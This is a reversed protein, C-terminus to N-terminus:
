LLPGRRHRPSAGRHFRGFRCRGTAAWEGGRGGGGGGSTLFLQPIVSTGRGAGRGAHGGIGRGGGGGGGNDRLKQTKANQRSRDREPDAVQTGTRTDTSPPRTICVATHIGPIPSIVTHTTTPPTRTVCTPTHARPVPDIIYIPYIGTTSAASPSSGPHPKRM